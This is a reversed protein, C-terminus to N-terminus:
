RSKGDSQPWVADCFEPEQKLSRWQAHTMQSPAPPVFGWEAMEDALLDLTNLFYRSRKVEDMVGIERADMMIRLVRFAAKDLRDAVDHETLPEDKSSRKGVAM